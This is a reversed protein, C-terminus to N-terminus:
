GGPDGADRVFGAILRRTRELPEWGWVPDTILVSGVIVDPAFSGV